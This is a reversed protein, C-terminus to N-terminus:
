PFCRVREPGVIQKNDRFREKRGKKMDRVSRQILDVADPRQEVRKRRGGQVKFASRLDDTRLAGRKGCGYRDSRQEDHHHPKRLGAGGAYRPYDDPLDSARRGRDSQGTGAGKRRNGSGVGGHMRGFSAVPSPHRNGDASDAGAETRRLASGGASEDSGGSGHRSAGGERQFVEPRGPLNQADM